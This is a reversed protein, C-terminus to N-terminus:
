QQHNHLNLNKQLYREIYGLTFEEIELYNGKIEEPIAFKEGAIDRVLLPLGQEQIFYTIPDGLIHYIDPVFQLVNQGLGLIKKYAECDRAKNPNERVEQNACHIKWERFYKNFLTKENVM